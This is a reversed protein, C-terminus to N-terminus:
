PKGKMAADTIGHAFEAHRVGVTFHTREQPTAMAYGNADLLDRLRERTLPKRGADARLSEVEAALRDREAEAALLAETLQANGWADAKVAEMAKRATEEQAAMGITHGRNWATAHHQQVLALAKELRDREDLLSRIAAPHAAAIYAATEPDYATALEDVGNTKCDIEYCQAGWENTEGERCEWVDLHACVEFMQDLADRLARWNDITPM